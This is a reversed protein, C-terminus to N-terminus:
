GTEILVATKLLLSVQENFILSLPNIFSCIAEMTLSLVLESLTVSVLEEWQGEENKGLTYTAIINCPEIV